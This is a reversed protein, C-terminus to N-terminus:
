PLPKANSGLLERNLGLVLDELSSFSPTAFRSVDVPVAAFSLTYGGMDLYMELRRVELRSFRAKGLRFEGHKPELTRVVVSPNGLSLLSVSRSRVSIANVRSLEAVSPVDHSEGLSALAPYFVLLGVGDPFDRVLLTMNTRIRRGRVAHSVFLYCVFGVLCLCVITGAVINVTFTVNDGDEGAKVARTFMVIFGLVVIPLAIAISILYVRLSNGTLGGGTAKRPERM